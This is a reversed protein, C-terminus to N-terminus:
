AKEGSPQEVLRRVVERVWDTAYRADNFLKKRVAASLTKRLHALAKDTLADKGVHRIAQLVAASTPSGPPFDKPSVHKFVIEFDAVKVSRSSGDTLYVLRGPVQTTLGLRNAAVAGSPAVRTGTQRAIAQAMDDVDPSIFLGLRRNKRPCHYLGRGIRQIDGDRSLRSLAQDVADRTGLDLFDKSTVVKGRGRSRIADRVAVTVPTLNSTDM